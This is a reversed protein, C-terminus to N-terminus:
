VGYEDRVEHIEIEDCVDVRINVFGDIFRDPTDRHTSNEITLM